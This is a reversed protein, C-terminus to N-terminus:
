AMGKMTVAIKNEVEKLSVLKVGRKEMEKEVDALHLLPLLAEMEFGLMARLELNNSKLESKLYKLRKRLDSWEAM